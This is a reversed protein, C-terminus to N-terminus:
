MVKQGCHHKVSQDSFTKLFLIEFQAHCQPVKLFEGVQCEWEELM